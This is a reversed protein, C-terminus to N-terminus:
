RVVASESVDPFTIVHSAVGKTLPRSAMPIAARNSFRINCRRERRSGGPRILSVFHCFTKPHIILCVPHKFVNKAWFRISLFLEQSFRCCALSSIWSSKMRRGCGSHSAPRRPSSCAFGEQGSAWLFRSPFICEINAIQCRSSFVKQCCTPFTPCAPTWITTSPTPTARSTPPSTDQVPAGCLCLVPHPAPKQSVNPTAHNTRLLNLSSPPRSLPLTQFYLFWFAFCGFGSPKILHVDYSCFGVSWKASAKERTVLLVFESLNRWVNM